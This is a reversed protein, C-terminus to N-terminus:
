FLKTVTSVATAGLDGAFRSAIGEPTLEEFSEYRLEIEEILKQTDENAALRDGVSFGAVWAERIYIAKKVDGLGFLNLGAGSLAGTIAGVGPIKNTVENALSGGGGKGYIVILIDRRFNMDEQPPKETGDGRLRSIATSIVSGSDHVKTAWRYFDSSTTVGRRLTIPEYRTIGPILTPHTNDVNERYEM